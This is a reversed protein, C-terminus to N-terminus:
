RKRINKILKKLNEKEKAAKKHKSELRRLINGDNSRYSKPSSRKPRHPKRKFIHPSYRRMRETAHKKKRKLL